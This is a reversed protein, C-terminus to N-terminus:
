FLMFHRISGPQAVSSKPHTSPMGARAAGRVVLPATTIEEGFTMGSKMRSSAQPVPKGINDTM